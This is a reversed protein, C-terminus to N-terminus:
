VQDQETGSQLLSQQIAYQLMDDDEELSIQRRSDAGSLVNFVSNTSPILFYVKILVNLKLYPSGSLLKM